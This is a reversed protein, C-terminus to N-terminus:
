ERAPAPSGGGCCTSPGRSPGRASRLGPRRRAEAGPADVGAPGALAIHVLGVPKEDSGGGPGAIGTIAVAWDSASCRPAGRAGDARRVRAVGRRPPRDGRRGSGARGGERRRRLLHRRRARLGVFGGPGDAARRPRRGHVVRRGRRDARRRRAGTRRRRRGHGRRPQLAADGLGDAVVAELADARGRRRARLPGDGRAGRRARLHRGPPAGLRRPRPRRAGLGADVRPRRPDAARARGDGACPRDRRGAAARRAGGGVDDRAGLAPGPLVVVTTGGHRVICGPATGPPPLMVSGAPLMAQKERLAALIAPDGQSRGAAPPSWSWRARTSPSRGAPPGAWPRWRSTTM